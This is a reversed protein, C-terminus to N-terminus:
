RPFEWKVNPWLDPRFYFPAMGLALSLAPIQEAPLLFNRDEKARNKWIHMTQPTVNLKRAVDAVTIGMEAAQELAFILPHRTARKGEIVAPLKVESRQYM